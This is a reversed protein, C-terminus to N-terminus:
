RFTFGLSLSPASYVPPPVYVPPPAYYYGPAYYYSYGPAYGYGYYGYYSPAGGFYPRHWEHGRWEHERWEHGRWGNDDDWDHALAPASAVGTLAAALAGALVLPRLLTFTRALIRRM